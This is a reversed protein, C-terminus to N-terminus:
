FLRLPAPRRGLSARDSSAPASTPRSSSALEPSGAEVGFFGAGSLRSGVGRASRQTRVPAGTVKSDIRVLQQGAMENLAHFLMM